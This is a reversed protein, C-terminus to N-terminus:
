ENDRTRHVKLALYCVSLEGYNTVVASYDHQLKTVQGRARKVWYDRIRDSM